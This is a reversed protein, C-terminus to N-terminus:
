PASSASAVVGTALVAKLTAAKDDCRLDLRDGQDSDIQLAQGPVLNTRIREALDATHPWFRAILYRQNTNNWVVADVACYGGKPAFFAVVRRSGVPALIPEYPGVPGLNQALEDAGVPISMAMLAVLVGVASVSLRHIRPFPVM